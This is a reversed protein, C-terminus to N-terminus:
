KGKGGKQTLWRFLLMEVVEATAHVIVRWVHHNM